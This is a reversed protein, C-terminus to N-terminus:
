PMEDSRERGGAGPPRAGGAEAALEVLVQRLFRLVDHPDALRHRAVTEGPGVRITWDGDRLTRFAEEDTVDDGLFAVTESPRRRRLQDLAFGKSAPRALLELVASGEKALAGPVGPWENRLWDLAEASRQPDAERVHLVVSAPKHEVWAREGALGAAHRAIGALRDLRASEEADLELPGNDSREMGHSGVLTIGPPFEFRTTLDLLSRGSVVAVDTLPALQALAPAVGPLLRAAHAHEVIPALVGDVDLALLLPRPATVVAHALTVPDDLAPDHDPREDPSM